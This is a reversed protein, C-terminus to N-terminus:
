AGDPAMNTGSILRPGAACAAARRGGARSPADLPTIRVVQDGSDRRAVALQLSRLVDAEWQAALRHHAGDVEVSIRQKRYHADLYHTRGARVKLQLHDPLPLQHQRCFRLFALESAAHAGLEVDDLVALILARRPLKPMQELTRRILGATSLRQQVVAALGGSLRAIAPPGLVRTCFQPMHTSPRSPRRSAAVLARSRGASPAGRTRGSPGEAGLPHRHGASQHARQHARDRIARPTGPSPPERDPTSCAAWARQRESMGGTHAVAVGPPAKMGDRGVRCRWAKASLGGSLAQRRSIVRTRSRSVGSGVKRWAGCAPASVDCAPARAVSQPSCGPNHSSQHGTHPWSIGSVM